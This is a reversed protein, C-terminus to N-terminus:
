GLAPLGPELAVLDLEAQMPARGSAKRWRRAADLVAGGWAHRRGEVSERELTWTRVSGDADATAARDARWTVSVDWTTVGASRLMAVPRAGEGTISLVRTAGDRGASAIVGADSSASAALIQAAHPPLARENSPAGGGLTWLAHAGGEGIVWLFADSGVFRAHIARGSPSALRDSAGDSLRTVAVEGDYSATAVRAGAADFRVSRVPRDHTIERVVDGSRADWVVARGDDGCSAVLRGDASFVADYVVVGDHRSFAFALEGSRGVRLGSCEPAAAIAVWRGCPSFRAALASAGGGEVRWAETSSALDWIVAAGDDGCTSLRPEVRDFEVRRVRDAHGDLRAVPELDEGTWVVAQGDVGGSALLAGDPSWAVTLAGGPHANPAVKRCRVGRLAIGLTEELRPDLPGEDRAAALCILAALEHRHERMAREAAAALREASLRRREAAREPDALDDLGLARRFADDIVEVADGSTM